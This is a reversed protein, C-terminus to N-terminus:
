AVTRRRAVTKRKVDRPGVPVVEAAYQTVKKGGRLPRVQLFKRYAVLADSAEGKTKFLTAPRDKIFQYKRDGRPEERLAGLKGNVMLVVIFGNTDGTHYTRQPM